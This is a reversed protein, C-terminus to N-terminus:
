CFAASQVHALTKISSHSTMLSRIEPILFDVFNSATSVLGYVNIHEVDCKEYLGSYSAVVEHDSGNQLLM